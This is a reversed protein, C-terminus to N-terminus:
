KKLFPRLKEDLGVLAGFTGPVWTCEKEDGEAFLEATRKDWAKVRKIIPVVEEPTAVLNIPFQHAYVQVGPEKFTQIEEYPENNIPHLEGTRFRQISTYAIIAGWMTFYMAVRAQMTSVKRRESEPLSRRYKVTRFMVGALCHDLQKFNNNLLLTELFCCVFSITSYERAPTLVTEMYRIAPVVHPLIKKDGKTTCNIMLQFSVLDKLYIKAEPNSFAQGTFITELNWSADKYMAHYKDFIEKAKTLREKAKDVLFSSRCLEHSFILINVCVRFGDASGVFPEALTFAEDLIALCQTLEMDADFTCKYRLAAAKMIKGTVYDYTGPEQLACWQDVKAVLKEVDNKGNARKILAKRYTADVLEAKNLDM